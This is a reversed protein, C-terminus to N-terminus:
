TKVEITHITRNCTNASALFQLGNKYRLIGIAKKPKNSYAEELM